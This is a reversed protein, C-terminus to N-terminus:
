VLSAIWSKDFAQVSLAQFDEPTLASAGAPLVARVDALAAL